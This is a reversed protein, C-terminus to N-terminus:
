GVEAHDATLEELGAQDLMGEALGRMIVYPQMIPKIFRYRFKKFSGEKKLIPGRDGALANLHTAFQPIGVARNLILSLPQRLAAAAFYGREDARACAAALVVQKYLTDRNSHTARYYDDALSEQAKKLAASIATDVHEINVQQEDDWVAASAAQQALLHTYHPLGQSLATIREVAHEDASMGVSDLGRKVIDGLEKRSMRPMHIQVLAREISQHESVLGDVDDAVGVVVVTAPVVQDSLTKITDAFLRHATSDNIRDFEDFFVTVPQNKGLMDLGVRVHDPTLEEVGSFYEAATVVTRKTESSFGLAQAETVIRLEGFAKRWVSTYSDSTQCNIKVSLGTAFFEECVAALSTKGVGREGYIVAHQGPEDIAEGMELLQETRGAFLDRRRIPVSPSFAGRVERDREIQESTLESV